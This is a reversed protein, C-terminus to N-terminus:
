VRLHRRVTIFSGLFGIGMGMALAIPILTKFVNTVPVFQIFGILLYFRNIVFQVAERYVFYLLTLPLVAGILGIMLGEIIFPARVFFDTAGILKMIGIEEKRVSIGITVTNSILFVGVAILIGIIALSAYGVLKNFSSLMDAATKSQNIKRVGELNSIYQVLDEQAEIDNVYVEYNASDMLPNDDQFGEALSADGQFYDEKVKSWAEEASVYKMQIVEPRAEIEKGIEDIREQSVGDDFFVTIGVGEEATKVIHQFNIVISYFLGFLFICAAITAISALTFIKNRYISKFGQKTTYGITSIRM